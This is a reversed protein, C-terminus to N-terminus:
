SVTLAADRIGRWVRPMLALYHAKGDRQVLRTFIGLIRLGRQVGLLAYLATFSLPDAGSLAIRAGDWATPISWRPPAPM